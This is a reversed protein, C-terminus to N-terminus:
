SKNGVADEVGFCRVNKVVEELKQCEDRLAWLERKLHDNEKRLKKIDNQGRDVDDQIALTRLRLEENEYIMGRSSRKDLVRNPKLNLDRKRQRHM